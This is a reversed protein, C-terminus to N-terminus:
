QNRYQTRDHAHKPAEEALAHGSFAVPRFSAALLIAFRVNVETLM